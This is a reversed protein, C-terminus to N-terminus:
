AVRIDEYGFDSSSIAALGRSLQSVARQLYRQPNPKLGPWSADSDHIQMWGCFKGPLLMNKRPFTDLKCPRVMKNINKMFFTGFYLPLHRVFQPKLSVWFETM